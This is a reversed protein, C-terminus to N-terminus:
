YSSTIKLDYGNSFQDPRVLIFLYLTSQYFGFADRDLIKHNEYFSDSMSVIQEGILINPFASAVM